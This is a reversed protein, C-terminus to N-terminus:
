LKEYALMAEQIEEHEFGIDALADYCEDPDNSNKVIYEKCNEVQSELRDLKERIEDFLTEVTM